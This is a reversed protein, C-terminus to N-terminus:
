RAGAAITALLGVGFVRGARDRLEAAMALAERARREAEDIRGANLSPRAFEALM